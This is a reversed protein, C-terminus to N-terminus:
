PTYTTQGTSLNSLLLRQTGTTGQLITTLGFSNYMVVEVTSRVTNTVGAVGTFVIVNNTGQAAPTIYYHSEGQNNSGAGQGSLIQNPLLVNTPNGNSTFMDLIPIVTTLGPLITPVGFQINAATSTIVQINWKISVAGEFSAPFTLTAGTATVTLLCGISNNVAKNMLTTGPAGFPQAGTATSGSLQGVFVDRPVCYGLASILEFECLDVEYEIYMEGLIQNAYAAPVNAQAIQLTCTDYTKPDIGPSLPAVRVFFWDNSAGKASDCEHGFVLNETSKASTAGKADLLSRKSTYAPEDVNPNTAACISGVQGNTSSGIDSTTSEYIFILKRLKYKAFNQAIQALKPCFSSMGVNVPYTQVNYPQNTGLLDGIYERGSVRLVDTEDSRVTQFRVPVTKVHGGHGIDVLENTTAEYMGKGRYGGAGVLAKVAEDKATKLLARGATKAVGKFLKKYNGHGTYTNGMSYAGKGKASMDINRLMRTVAEMSKKNPQKKSAQKNQKTKMIVYFRM